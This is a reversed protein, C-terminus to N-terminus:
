GKLGLSRMLLDAQEKTLNDPDGDHGKIRIVEVNRALPAIHKSSAKVAKQGGRDQDFFMFLNNIEKQALEVYQKGSLQTGFSCIASKGLRWKDFVGEVLIADGGVPIEDLGYILDKPRVACEAESAHLYKPEGYDTVDRSTFSILTGNKYIPIIIRFAYKGFNYVAKIKYKRILQKYNFRRKKLYMRHLKPFVKSAEDPMKVFTETDILAFNEEPEIKRPADSAEIRKFIEKAEKYTLDTVEKIISILRKRGCKWCHCTLDSLRIGLHNSDDDCFPCQINIWGYTVNKGSEWYEIDFDELFEKLEM